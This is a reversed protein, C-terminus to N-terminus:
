HDWTTPTTIAQQTPQGRLIPAWGSTTASETVPRIKFQGDSRVSLYSSPISALVWQESPGADGGDPKPYTRLICGLDFEFATEAHHPDIDVAVLAQGNLVDLARDILNGESLSTALQASNLTLSWACSTLTLHWQGRLFTLRGPTEAPAGEIHVPWNRPEEITLVPDGFELFVMSPRDRFLASERGREVSWSPRGLLPKFLDDIPDVGHM